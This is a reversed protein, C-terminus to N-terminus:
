KFQAHSLQESKNKLNDSVTREATKETQVQQSLKTVDAKRDDYMKQLLKIGEEDRDLEEKTSKLKDKIGGM